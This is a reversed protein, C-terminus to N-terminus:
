KKQNLILDDFHSRILHINTNSKILSKNFLESYFESGYINLHETDYFFQDSLSLDNLDIYQKRIGLDNILNQYVKENERFLSNKHTPTRIILYKVRSKKLLNVIKKFYIISHDSYIDKGIRIENKSNSKKLISIDRSYFGGLTNILSQKNENLHRINLSVSLFISNIVDIPNKLFLTTYGNFDVISSYRPLKDSIFPEKFMWRNMASDIQNNSYEIFYILDKDKNDKILKKLKYFTYLYSEGGESLNKANLVISDNYASSTHSHGLFVYKVDKNLEFSLMKNKKSNIIIYSVIFVTSCLLLFLNVKFFLKLFAKRIEKEKM